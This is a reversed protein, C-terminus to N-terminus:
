IVLLVAWREKMTQIPSRSVFDYKRVCAMPHTENPKSVPRDIGLDQVITVAVHTYMTM